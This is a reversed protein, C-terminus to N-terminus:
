KPPLSWTSIKKRGYGEVKKEIGLKHAARNLTTKAINRAEAMEYIATVNMAPNDELTKKLWEQANEKEGNKSPPAVSVIDDATWDVSEGWTLVSRNTHQITDPLGDIRYTFSRFHESINNKTCAVVRTEADDPSQGVTIVIRAAGTFAISGQGRYLAKDKGGKTLHRVVVVACDFRLALKKFYGMAQQTDSARYTDAGGIYTNITDFVILTPRIEELRDVVLGWREEDDVGFPEEGQFFNQQNIIGNEVLRKKTVSGATNETDFYVVRGKPPKYKKEIAPISQGDCILKSIMQMLYSKGLGPDGELITMEKKAFLSPILWDINEMEVDAISGSIPNWTENDKTGDVSYGEFHQSLSKDLERWLQDAGDRREKFKNWPSIWLVDFAEERSMGAELCANQLKWIVESRKGPTPKGQLLERRAWRSLQSEYRKYTEMARDSVDEGKLSKMKPVRKELDAITYTPGNTWLTKVRPPNDYKYNRTNPIRLVQTRDWGSVDTGLMYTLRRNLEESAPKDTVWYGVYRGPSSEIAITPKIKCKRPSAEDMDAYLLYPDVSQQKKRSKTKFGHPCMYLDKDGNQRIFKPVRVLAKKSFFTDTWKGTITKTSVCFYKGPQNKWLDIILM